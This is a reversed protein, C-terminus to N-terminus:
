NLEKKLPLIDKNEEHMPIYADFVIGEVDYM